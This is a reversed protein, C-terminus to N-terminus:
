LEIFQKTYLQEKHTKLKIELKGYFDSDWRRKTLNGSWLDMGIERSGLMSKVYFYEPWKEEKIQSEHGDYREGSFCCNKYICLNLCLCFNPKVM